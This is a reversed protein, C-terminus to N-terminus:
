ELASKLAIPDKFTGTINYYDEGEVLLRISGGQLSSEEDTIQMTEVGNTFITIVDGIMVVRVINFTDSGQILNVDPTPDQLNFGSGGTVKQLTIEGYDAISLQYYDEVSDINNYRWQINWENNHDGGTMVSKGTITFDIDTVNERLELGSEPIMSDTGAQVIYEDEIRTATGPGFSEWGAWVDGPDVVIPICGVLTATVVAFTVIAKIYTKTKMM